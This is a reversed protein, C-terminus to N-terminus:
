NRALRDRTLVENFDTTIKHLIVRTFGRAERPIGFEHIELRGPRVWYIPWVGNGLHQGRADLFSVMVYVADYVNGCRSVARVLYRSAETKVMEHVAFCSSVNEARAAPVLLGLLLVPLALHKM